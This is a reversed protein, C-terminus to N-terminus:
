FMVATLLPIGQREPPPKSKPVTRRMCNSMVLMAAMSEISELAATRAEDYAICLEQLTGSYSDIADQAAAVGQETESLSENTNEVSSVADEGARAADMLSDELEQITEANLGAIKGNEELAASQEELVAKNEDVTATWGQIEAELSVSFLFRYIFFFAAVIM